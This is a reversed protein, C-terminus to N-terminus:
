VVFMTGEEEFLSRFIIAAISNKRRSSYSVKIEFHFSVLSYEPFKRCKSYPGDRILKKYQRLKLLIKPCPQKLFNKLSRSKFIEQGHLKVEVTNSDSLLIARFLDLATQSVVEVRIPYDETFQVHLDLIKTGVPINQFVFM